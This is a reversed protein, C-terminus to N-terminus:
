KFFWVRIGTGIIAFAVFGVFWWLRGLSQAHLEVKTVLGNKGELTSFIKDVMDKIDETNDKLVAIDSEFKCPETM